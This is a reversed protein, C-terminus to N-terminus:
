STPYAKFTVKCVTPWYPDAQHLPPSFDSHKLTGWNQLRRTTNLYLKHGDSCSHNIDQSYLTRYLTRKMDVRGINHINLRYLFLNIPTILLTNGIKITCPIVIILAVGVYCCITNCYNVMQAANIRVFQRFLATWSGQFYALLLVILQSM